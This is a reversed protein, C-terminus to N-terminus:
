CGSADVGANCRQLPAPEVAPAESCAPSGTGTAEAPADTHNLHVAGWDPATVKEVSAPVAKSVSSVTYLPDLVSM